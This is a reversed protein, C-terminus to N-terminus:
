VGIKALPRYTITVDCPISLNFTNTTLSFTNTIRPFVYNFDDALQHTTSDCNIMPHNFNITEGSTCNKVETTENTLTNYIQLSGGSRCKFTANPYLYGIEDSEDVISFSRVNSFTKTKLSQWGFPSSTTLTLQLGIIQTGIRVQEIQFSGFYTIDDWGDALLVFPLYDKRNLWRALERVEAVTLFEDNVTTTNCFNKCISFTTQIVTDYQTGAVAQRVGHQIPVETFTIESGNSIQENNDGFYCIIYGKDSLQIGDYIFDIANM